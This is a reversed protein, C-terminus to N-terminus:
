SATVRLAAAALVIVSPLILDLARLRLSGPHTCYGKFGRAAMASYIRESREYSRLLFMGLASGIIKAQGISRAKYGRSKLARLIREAEDILLFHYRYLFALTLVLLQPLRFRRLAELVKPFPTTSTFLLLAFASFVAKETINAFILGPSMAGGSGAAAAATASGAPQEWRFLPLLVTAMLIFPVVVLLRRLIHQPPVRSLLLLVLLILYYGAFALAAYPPTSVALLILALFMLLKARPDLRHIASGLDSYRDFFSHRM